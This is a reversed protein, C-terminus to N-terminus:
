YNERLQDREYLFSFLLYSLRCLFCVYSIFTKEKGSNRTGGEKEGAKESKQKLAKTLLSTINSHSCM